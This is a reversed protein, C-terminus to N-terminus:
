IVYGCSQPVSWSPAEVKRDNEQLSLYKTWDDLLINLDHIKNDLGACCNAHMTCALNLDKSPECFGGFYTTDLYKIGLGLDSVYPDYKIKNFVDQDHEGPYNKRSKYWFKYFKITKKSARVYNFGGNPANEVDSPDGKFYDCSIQFDTDSYFKPFPNRLWMIDADQVMLFEQNKTNQPM